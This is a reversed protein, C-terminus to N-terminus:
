LTEALQFLGDLQASTLGLATTMQALLPNDRRVVSSSAWTIQAEQGATGTMAAIAADVQALYGGRLLVIRAQRMTVETPVIPPPPPPTVYAAITGLTGAIAEAYLDRGLQESDDPSATFPIWGYIPHDIEMDVTGHANYALNRADM